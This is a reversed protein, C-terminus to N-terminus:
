LERGAPQPQDGASIAQSRHGAYVGYGIDGLLDRPVSSPAGRLLRRAPLSGLHKTLSMKTLFHFYEKAENVGETEEGQTTQM